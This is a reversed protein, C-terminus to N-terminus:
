VAPVDRNVMADDVSMLNEVEVASLPSYFGKAVMFDFLDQANRIIQEPLSSEDYHIVDSRNAIRKNHCDIVSLPQVGEDLRLLHQNSPIIEPTWNQPAVPVTHLEVGSLLQSHCAFVTNTNQLAGLRIHIWIITVYTKGTRDLWISSFATRNGIWPPQFCGMPNMGQASCAEQYPAFADRVVPPLQVDGVPHLETPRCTGHNAPYRLKLMKRVLFCPFLFAQALITQRRVTRWIATIPLLTIDDTYFKPSMDPSQYPNDRM